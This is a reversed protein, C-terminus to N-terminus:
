HDDNINSPLKEVAKIFDEVDVVGKIMGDLYEKSIRDGENSNFPHFKACIVFNYKTLYRIRLDAKRNFEVLKEDIFASGDDFESRTVPHGKFVGYEENYYGFEKAMVEIHDKEYQYVGIPEEPKCEVYVFNRKYSDSRYVFIRNILCEDYGILCKEDSIREFRDIDLCSSGRFVWIPGRLCKSSLPYKLLVELRDIAEKPNNFWKLGRIGPFAKKIRYSFFTTSADFSNIDLEEKRNSSILTNSNNSDDKIIDTSIETQKKLTFQPIEKQIVSPKQKEVENFKITDKELLKSFLENFKIGEDKVLNIVYRGKLWLPLIEQLTDTTFDEFSVLIYKNPTRGIEDMIIEYEKGVGGIFSEAKEKYGKSLIIIVKKYDNIGRHMMENLNISSENQSLSKDMDAYIGNNRLFNVFSIVKEEHTENDWSYTVFVEKSMIYICGRMICFERIYLM